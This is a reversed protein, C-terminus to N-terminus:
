SQRCSTLAAQKEKDGEFIDHLPASLECGQPNLAYHIEMFTERLAFDKFIVMESAKEFFLKSMEKREEPDNWAQSHLIYEYFFKFAESSLQVLEEEFQIQEKRM